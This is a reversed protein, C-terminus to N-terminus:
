NEEKERDIHDHILKHYEIDKELGEGVRKSVDVADIYLSWMFLWLFPLSLWRFGRPVVRQAIVKALRWFFVRMRTEGGAKLEGYIAEIEDNSLISM